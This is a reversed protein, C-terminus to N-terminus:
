AKRKLIIGALPPITLVVSQPQNHWKEAEATISQGNSIGSGYFDGADSNFIEEWQGLSPVGIRYNSQPTPTMNLVVVVTDSPNLGKRMYAVISNDRDQADIWGFGDPSFNYDHLAPQSKLTANLTKVCENLGKHPALQLLHWDLSQQFNWERLQGFEGGMFVLKTGPHTYMYTFLLRLNAFRQWEDGRMKGILSGKGYVVEDHSLPLM